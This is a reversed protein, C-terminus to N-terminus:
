DEVRTELIDQLPQPLTSFFNYGTRRELEQVTTRYQRWNNQSIGTANPMDVAIVHTGDNVASADSGQPVAIIIKWFNTPITVKRKLRGRDGYVGAIVFLDVHGRRVLTRAYSELKEWAFRNLDATQPAINTMLFTLSNQGADSSRDGSPCIHGRDFGSGTYDAPTIRKWGLPLSTDPRFDNQREVDGLDSETVRWAVWNATGKSDNYSLAFATNLILYNDKNVPNATAGSPNGFALYIHEAQEPSSPRSPLTGAPESVSNNTSRTELLRDYVGVGVWACLVAVLIVIALATLAIVISRNKMDSKHM